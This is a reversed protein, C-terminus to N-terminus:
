LPDLEDFLDQRQLKRQMEGFNGSIEEYAAKWQRADKKAVEEELAANNARTTAAELAATLEEILSGQWRAHGRTEEVLTEFANRAESELVTIRSVPNHTTM